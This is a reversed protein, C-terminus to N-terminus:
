IIWNMGNSKFSEIMSEYSYSKINYVLDNNTLINKLIGLNTYPFRELSGISTLFVVSVYEKNWLIPRKLICVSIHTYKSSFYLSHPLAVCNGCETSSVSERYAVLDYLNKEVDEIESIKRCLLEIVQEKSIATVDTFFLEPSFCNLFEEMSFQIKLFFNNLKAKDEPNVLTNFQLVPIPSDYNIAPIDTIICDYEEVNTYDLQYFEISKIIKVHSAFNNQLYKEYNHAVVRGNEMIILINVKRPVTYKTYSSNFIYALYAIESESIKYHFKHMIFVSAIIAFEYAPSIQKISLLPLNMKRINFKLRIMLGRLHNFLSLRLDTDYSLDVEVLDYIYSIIDISIKYLEKNRNIDIIDAPLLVRRSIIFLTIFSVEREDELLLNLGLDSLLEMTFAYESTLCFEAIDSKEINILNGKRHRILSVIILNIIKNLSSNAVMIGSQSMKKILTNKVLMYDFDVHEWDILNNDDEDANIFDAMAHRMCFENGLLKMGHAPKTKIELGYNHLISKVDKFDNIITNRSFYLEDQLSEMKIYGETSLFRIIIHRVRESNYIPFSYNDKYKSNFTQVFTSYDRYNNIKICHGTGPKSTIEAGFYKMIESVVHMDSKITKSNSGLVTALFDSSVPKDSNILYKIILLQRKNLNFM